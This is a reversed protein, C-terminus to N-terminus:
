SPSSGHTDRSYNKRLFRTNVGMASLVKRGSLLGLCAFSSLLECGLIFTQVCGGKGVYRGLFRSFFALRFGLFDLGAVFCAILLVDDLLLDLLYGCLLELIWGLVFRRVSSANSLSGSLYRLLFCM